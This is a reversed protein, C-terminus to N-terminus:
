GEDELVVAMEALAQQHLEASAAAILCDTKGLRVANGHWDTIIGGAEEIVPVLAMIDHNALSHEVVLDIHGAALLAYNYCDGGWSATLCRAALRDFNILAMEDLAEPATSAIRARAIDTIGSVSIPKENCFAGKGTVAIFQEDLAPMDIMAAIPVLENCLAVLTGFQPKGCIFARTGDIPDIVWDFSGSILGGQEEGVINHDPYAAIVADRLVQEAQKDAITVPSDDAKGEIAIPQRFCRNIVERSAFSFSALDSALKDFDLNNAQSSM